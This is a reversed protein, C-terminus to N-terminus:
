GIYSLAHNTRPGSQPSTSLIARLNVKLNRAFLAAVTVHLLRYAPDKLRSRARELEATRRARREWAADAAAKEEKAKM